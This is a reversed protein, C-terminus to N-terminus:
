WGLWGKVRSKARDLIKEPLFNSGFVERDRRKCCKIKSPHHITGLLEGREESGSFGIDTHSADLDFGINEALEVAPRVSMYREKFFLYALQYDWTDIKKHLVLLFVRVWFVAPIVGQSKIMPMILGVIGLHSIQRDYKRWVRRWTAWGWIHPYITFGYSESDYRCAGRGYSNASISGIRVDDRYKILLESAFTFFSESCVIDDEIIIGAEENEFFWDIANAVGDRCGYNADAYRKRVTCDWDIYGDVLERCALVDRATKNEEANYGDCAIYLTKPRIKRIQELVRATKTPRRWIILLIPAIEVM